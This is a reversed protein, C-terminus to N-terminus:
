FLMPSNHYRKNRLSNMTSVEAVQPMTLTYIVGVNSCTSILPFFVFSYFSVYVQQALVLILKEPTIGEQGVFQLQCGRVLM